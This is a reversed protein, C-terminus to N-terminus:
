SPIIVDHLPAIFTNGAFKPIAGNTGDQPLDITDGYMSFSYDGDVEELVALDEGLPNIIFKKIDDWKWDDKELLNVFIDKKRKKLFWCLDGLMVEM